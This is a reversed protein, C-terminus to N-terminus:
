VRVVIASANDHGGAADAAGLIEVVAGDADRAQLVAKLQQYPVQEAVGDSCLLFVDGPRPNVNLVDPEPM